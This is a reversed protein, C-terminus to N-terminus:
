QKIILIVPYFKKKRSTSASKIFREKLFKLSKKKRKKEREREKNTLIDPCTFLWQLYKM